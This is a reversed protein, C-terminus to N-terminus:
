PTTGNVNASRPGAGINNVGYVSYVYTTGTVLGTDSHSTASLGSTIVAGDRIVTYWLAGLAVNWALDIRTTSFPTAVLGTVQM